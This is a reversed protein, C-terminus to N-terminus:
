SGPTSKLGPWGRSDITNLRGEVTQLREAPAQAQRPDGLNEGRDLNGAERTPHQVIGGTEAPRAGSEVAAGTHDEDDVGESPKGTDLALKGAATLEGAPTLNRYITTRSVGLEECLAAVSTDRHQM